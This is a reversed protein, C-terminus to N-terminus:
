NKTSNNRIIHAKKIGNFHNNKLKPLQKQELSVYNLMINKNLSDTLKHNMLSRDIKIHHLKPGFNNINNFINSYNKNILHFEKENNSFNNYEGRKQSPATNIKHRMNNTLKNKDIINVNNIIKKDINKTNNNEELKESNINNINNKNINDINEWLQGCGLNFNSLPRQQPLIPIIINNNNSNSFASLLGIRFKNNHDETLNQNNISNSNNKKSYALTSVSPTDDNLNTNKSNKNQNFPISININQLNNILEESNNKNNTLISDFASICKQKKKYIEKIQKNNRNIGIKNYKTFFSDKVVNLKNNINNINNNINKDINKNINDNINNINNNMNNNNSISNNNSNIHGNFSRLNIIRSVHNYKNRNNKLFINKQKNNLLFNKDKNILIQNIHNIQNNNNRNSDFNEIKKYLYNNFIDREKMINNFIIKDMIKFNKNKDEEKEEVIKKRINLASNSAIIINFILM